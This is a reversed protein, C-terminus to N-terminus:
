KTKMNNADQPKAAKIRHMRDAEKAKGFLEYKEDIGYKLMFEQLEKTSATLVIGSNKTEEHKVANPDSKLLKGFNDPDMVRLQLSGKTLNARMFTHAPVFHMKYYDNETVNLEKPYIDLFMDNGLKGLEADFRGLKGNNEIYICDYKKIGPKFEWTENSDAPSWIGVLNADYVLENETFLPHLSPVCGGLIVALLYFAVKEMKTKM